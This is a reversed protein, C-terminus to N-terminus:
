SSLCSFTQLHSYQGSVMLRRCSAPASELSHKMANILHPINKLVDSCKSMRDVQRVGFFYLRSRRQPLGFEDARLKETTVHYGLDTLKALVLKLNSRCFGISPYQFGFRCQFRFESKVTCTRIDNKFGAEVYSPPRETRIVVSLSIWRENMLCTLFEHNDFLGSYDHGTSSGM